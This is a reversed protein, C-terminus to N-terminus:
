SCFHLKTALFKTQTSSSLISNGLISVVVERKKEEITQTSSSLISNPLKEKRKKRRVTSKQKLLVLSYPITTMSTIVSPTTFGRTQTSSSLISNM